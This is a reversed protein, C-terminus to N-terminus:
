EWVIGSTTVIERWPGWPVLGEDIFRWSTIANDELGLCTWLAPSVDLGARVGFTNKPEADGFVYAFDDVLAPGVDQWQGYCTQNRYKVEIWRNKLLPHASDSDSVWPIQAASAKREGEHDFEGYPLAFYFPNEKPAFACPRYGLRCTPDDVGGFHEQWREDWYSVDNAIFDNSADSAEGVWFLTTMVSKYAPKATPTIFISVQVLLAFAILAATLRTLTPAM